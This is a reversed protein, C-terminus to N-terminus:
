LGMAKRTKESANLSVIQFGPKSVGKAAVTRSGGGNTQVTATTDFNKTKGAVPVRLIPVAKKYANMFEGRTKLIVCAIRLLMEDQKIAGATGHSVIKKIIANASLDLKEIEACQQRYALILDSCRPTLKFVYEVHGKKGDKWAENAADLLPKGRYGLNALIEADFLNFFPQQADLPECSGSLHLCLALVAEQTHFPHVEM